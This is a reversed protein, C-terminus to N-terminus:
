KLGSLVPNAFKVVLEAASQGLVYVAELGAKKISESVKNPAGFQLYAFYHKKAGEIFAESFKIGPKKIKKDNEMEPNRYWEDWNSIEGDSMMVILNGNGEFLYDIDEKQIYTSGFQPELATKVAEDINEGWSSSSSFVGLRTKTRKLSGKRRCLEQFGYWAELEQHYISKDGWQGNKAAWPNMIKGMCGGGCGSYPCGSAHRTSDSVDLFIMKAEPIGGPSKHYAADKEYPDRGVGLSRRGDEDRFIRIKKGRDKKPDFERIGTYLIPMKESEASAEIKFQMKKALMRYVHHLADNNEMYAPPTFCGPKEEKDKGDQEGNKERGKEGCSEAYKKWVLRMKTEPSRMEGGFEDKGMLPLFMEPTAPREILESFEEAFLKALEPWNKEDTIHNLIKGYETQILVGQVGDNGHQLSIKRKLRSLGSRNLFNSVAMSAKKDNTIHKEVLEKAYGDVDATLLELNVFAEYLPPYKEKETHRGVDHYFLWKGIYREASENEADDIWDEFMNAMYDYMRQMTSLDIVANPIGKKRLAEAIPELICEAHLNINRPCGKQGLAIRGRHNIEHMIISEVTDEVPNTRPIAKKIEESEEEFEPNYAVKVKSLTLTDISGSFNPKANNPILMIEGKFGSKLKEQEAIQTLEQQLTM